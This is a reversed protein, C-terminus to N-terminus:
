ARANAKTEATSTTAARLDHRIKAASMGFVSCIQTFSFVHDADGEFLWQRADRFRITQKGHYKRYDMIANKLIALMLQREPVDLQRNKVTEWYRDTLAFDQSHFFVLGTIPM